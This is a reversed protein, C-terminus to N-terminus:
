AQSISRFQAEYESPSIGYANRFAKYFGSHSSFGCAESIESLSLDLHSMLEIAKGLRLRMLYASFTIGMTKHFYDSFYSPNMRAIKAIDELRISESLNLNIYDLVTKLSRSAPHQKHETNRSALSNIRILQTAFELLKARIMIEYGTSKALFEEEAALLIDSLNRNMPHRSDYHLFSFSSGFLSSLYQSDQENFHKFLLLSPYFATVKLRAPNIRDPFWAHPTNSNFMIFDGAKVEICQNNVFYLALGSQIYTIEFFRHMHFYLENGIQDRWTSPISGPELASTHSSLRGDFHTKTKTINKKGDIYIEPIGHSTFSIPLNNKDWRAMLLTDVRYPLNNEGLEMDEYFLHLEM